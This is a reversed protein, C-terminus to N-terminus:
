QSLSNQAGDAFGQTMLNKITTVLDEISVQVKIFYHKIGLREVKQLDSEQGLNSVVVVPVGQLQPDISIQELIEFGSVKPMIIDLLVLDPLEKKLAAIGEEGDFAQLVAFGEKELRGKLVQSLFKDDEIILIKKGDAM